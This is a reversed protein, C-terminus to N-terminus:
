NGTCLCEYPTIEREKGGQGVWCGAAWKPLLNYGPRKGEGEANGRCIYFPSSNKTYVDSYIAVEGVGGCVQACSQGGGNVWHTGSVSLPTRIKGLKIDKDDQPQSRADMTGFTFILIAAVLALSVKM